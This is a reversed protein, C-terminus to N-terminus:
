PNFSCKSKNAHKISTISSKLEGRCAFLSM